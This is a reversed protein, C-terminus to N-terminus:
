VDGMDVMILLSVGSSTSCAHLSEALTSVHCDAGPFGISNEPKAFTNIYIDFFLAKAEASNYDEVQYKDAVGGLFKDEGMGGFPIFEEEDVDLKYLQKFVM